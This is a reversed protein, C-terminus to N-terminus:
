SAIRDCIALNNMDTEVVQVKGLMELLLKCRKSGVTESFIADVQAFPGEKVTVRDGSCFTTKSPSELFKMCRKRLERVLALEVPLLAGCTKVAQSITSLTVIKRISDQFPDLRVFLYGPFLPQARESAEAEQHTSTKAPIAPLYVQYGLSKLQQEAQLECRAKTRFLYWGLM